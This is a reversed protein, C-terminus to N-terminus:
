NSNITCHQEFESFRNTHRMKSKLKKSTNKIPKQPSLNCLLRLKYINKDDVIDKYTLVKSEM